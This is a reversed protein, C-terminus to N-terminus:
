EKLTLRSLAIALGIKNNYADTKSCESMGVYSTGDKTKITLFTAGGCAAIDSHTKTLRFYKLPLLINKKTSLRYHEVFTKANQKKWDNLSLNNM